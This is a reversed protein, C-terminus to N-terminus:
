TTKREVLTFELHQLPEDKDDLRNSIIRFANEAQLDIPYHITTMDFLRAVNNTDDFGVVAVDEPIRIGIRRAEAIFGSALYDTPCLIADAKVDQASWWHAIEEGHTIRGKNYFHEMENPNLGYKECFDAFARMRGRTNKGSMRGYINVIRRYGQAYLHELGLMYGDYQDMFVSAVKQLEVREWTVIPGYKAYKEIVDWPSLRLVFVLADLQKHRLMELAELEREKSGNTVFVTVNYGDEQAAMSFSRLFVGMSNDFTLAVIGLMMTKGKKLSVANRNPAYDLQDVIEQVRARTEDSVYGRGSVVRSVTAASVGALKAIDQINAMSVM